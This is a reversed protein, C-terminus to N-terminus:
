RVTQVRAGQLPRERTQQSFKAVEPMSMQFWDFINLQIAWMPLAFPQCGTSIILLCWLHEYPWQIRNYNEHHEALCQSTNVTVVYAWCYQHWIIGYVISYSKYFALVWWCHWVVPNRNGREAEAPFMEDTGSKVQSAADSQAAEKAQQQIPLALVVWSRDGHPWIWVGCKGAFFFVHRLSVEAVDMAPGVAMRLSLKTPKRFVATQLGCVARFGCSTQLSGVVPQIVATMRCLHHAPRLVVYASFNLRCRVSVVFDVFHM